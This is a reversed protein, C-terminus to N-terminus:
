SFDAAAPMRSLKAKSPEAKKQEVNGHQNSLAKNIGRAIKIEKDKHASTLKKVNAKSKSTEAKKIDEEFTHRAAKFMDNSVKGTLAGTIENVFLEVVDGLKEKDLSKAAAFAAGRIYANVIPKAVSEAFGMGIILSVIITMGEDFKNQNKVKAYEPGGFSSMILYSGKFLDMVDFFAAFYPHLKLVVKVVSAVQDYFQEFRKSGRIDRGAFFVNYAAKRQDYGKEGPLYPYGTEEAKAMNDIELLQSKISEKILLKLKSNNIKM